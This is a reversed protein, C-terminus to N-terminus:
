SYMKSEEDKKRVLLVKWKLIAFEYFFWNVKKWHFIFYLGYSYENDCKKRNSQSVLEM